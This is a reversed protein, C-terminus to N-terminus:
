CNSRSHRQGLSVNGLISTLLNNFDHAIGGALVGISEIERTHFIENELRLAESVDRFVLVVGQLAGTHDRIPASSDAISIERGDRALLATHHALSVSHGEQLVRTVPNVAPHRTQEHLIHFVQTIPRGLAEPAPWGSLGVAVPNLFTICGHTDTAIVADGISTLTVDLWDRQLRLAAEAQKRVTVDEIVLLILQLHDVRRANLLMTRRGVPEFDHVVEYDNFVTNRPVIEELLTRLEPIAWQGNGLHYILQGVTDAPDVQFTRYFAANASQVHLDATLILLPDRVTEVIVSTYDQPVRPTHLLPPQGALAAELAVVRQRLAVLERQAERLISTTDAM